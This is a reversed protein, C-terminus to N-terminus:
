GLNSVQVKCQDRGYGTRFFSSAGSSSDTSPRSAAGGPGSTDAMGSARAAGAEGSCQPRRRLVAVGLGGRPLEDLALHPCRGYMARRPLVVASWVNGHQLEPRGLGTTLGGALSAGGATRPPPPPVQVGVAACRRRIFDAGAVGTLASPLAAEAEAAEAPEHVGM